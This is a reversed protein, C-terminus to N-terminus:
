ARGADPGRRYHDRCEQEGVRRGALPGRTETVVTSQDEEGDRAYYIVVRDGTMGLEHARATNSYM